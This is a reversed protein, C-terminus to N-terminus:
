LTEEYWEFDVFTKDKWTEPHENRYRSIEELLKEFKYYSPPHYIRMGEYETLEQDDVIVVERGPRMAGAIVDDFHKRELFTQLREIFVRSGGHMNRFDEDYGRTKLFTEKRIGYTNYEVPDIHDMYNKGVYYPAAKPCPTTRAWVGLFQDETLEPIHKYVAKVSEESIEMDVDILFVWDHTAQQVGLNRCGHGNFGYNIPVRLIRINLDDDAWRGVVEKALEKTSGDDVIIIEDWLKTSEMTLFRSLEEEDEFYPIVLSVKTHM